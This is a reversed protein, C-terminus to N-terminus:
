DGRNRAYLVAAALAASGIGVGLAIPWNRRRAADARERAAKAVAAARVIESQEDM